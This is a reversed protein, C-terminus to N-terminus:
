PSQRRRRLWIGAGGAALLAPAMGPEPVPIQQVQDIALGSLVSTDGVNAAGLGLIFAGIV